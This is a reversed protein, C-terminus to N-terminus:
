LLKQWFTILIHMATFAIWGVRMLFFLGAWATTGLLALGDKWDYSLRQQSASIRKKHTGALFQYLTLALCCISARDEMADEVRLCFKLHWCGFTFGGLGWPSCKNCCYFSEVTYEIARMLMRFNWFSIGPTSTPSGTFLVNSFLVDRPGTLGQLLDAKASALRQWGWIPWRSMMAMQIRPQQLRKGAEGVVGVLGQCRSSNSDTTHRVKSWYPVAQHPAM